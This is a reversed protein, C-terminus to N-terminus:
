GKNVVIKTLVFQRNGSMSLYIDGIEKFWKVNIQKLGEFFSKVEVYPKHTLSIILAYVFVLESLSSIGTNLLNFFTDIIEESQFEEVIDLISNNARDYDSNPDNVIGNRKDVKVRYQDRM